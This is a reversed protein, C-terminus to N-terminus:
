LEVRLTFRHEDGLDEGVPVYAWDFAFSGQQMGLGVSVDRTDIGDQYGVGFRLTERYHYEFGGHLSTGQDRVNRLEVAVTVQGDMQRLPQVYAMAGQVTLPLDFEEEIFSVSPGLNRVAAGLRLPSSEWPAWQLGLDGAYGSASYDEIKETLYKGTVGVQVGRFLERGLSVGVTYSAYGFTGSPNGFSDYGDIDDTWMGNFFLGAVLGGGGLPQAIAAYEHRLDAFSEVHSLVLQPRDMRALGAPNWYCATADAVHATMAEGFVVGHADVGNKLYALGTSAAAPTGALIALLLAAGSLLGATPRKYMTM